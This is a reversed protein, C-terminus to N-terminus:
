NRRSDVRIRVWDGEQIIYRPELVENRVRKESSEVTKQTTYMIKFRRTGTSSGGTDLYTTEHFQSSVSRCTMTDSGCRNPVSSETLLSHVVTESGSLPSKIRKYLSTFQVSPCLCSFPLTPVWDGESSFIDPVGVSYQVSSIHGYRYGQLSRGYVLSVLRPCLKYFQQHPSAYLTPLLHYNPPGLVSVVKKVSSTHTRKPSEVWPTLASFQM